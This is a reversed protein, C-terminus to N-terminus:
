VPKHLDMMIRESDSFFVFVGPVTQPAKALVLAGAAANAHDDHEGTPHDIKTGKRVLGILQQILKPVDLMEIAGTNLMPEYSAYIESRNMTSVEYQIGLKTFADQPWKKAYSDGVVKSCRYLKLVDVFKTVASEPSFTKGIRAGEDMLLDLLAKGNSEHAIALTSDENGGGSM